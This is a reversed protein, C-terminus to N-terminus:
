WLFSLFCLIQIITRKPHHFLLYTTKMKKKMCNISALIRYHTVKMNSFIGMNLVCSNIFVILSHKNISKYPFFALIEICRYTTAM